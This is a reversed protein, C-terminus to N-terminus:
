GRFKYSLNQYKETRRIKLIKLVFEDKTIMSNNVFLQNILLDDKLDDGLQISAIM